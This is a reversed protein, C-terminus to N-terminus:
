FHLALVSLVKLLPTKPPFHLITWIFIWSLVRSFEELVLECGFIKGLLTRVIDEPRVKSFCLWLRWFSASCFFACCEGMFLVCFVGSLVGCASTCTRVQFHEGVIDPFIDEPRVKSFRLRLRRFFASCVFACCRGKLYCVFYVPYAGGGRVLVLLEIRFVRRSFGLVSLVRFFRWFLLSLRGFFDVFFRVANGGWVM